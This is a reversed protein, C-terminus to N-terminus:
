EKSFVYNAPGQSFNFKKIKGDTEKIFLIKIGAAAFSFSLENEADLNFASQGTAQATLLNGAQKITIKLPFGPAAYVGEYETLSSAPLSITNFSPIQYPM